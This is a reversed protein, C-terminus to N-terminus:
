SATVQRARNLLEMVSNNAQLFAEMAEHPPLDDDWGTMVKGLQFLRVFVGKDTLKGESFLKKIDNLEEEAYEITKQLREDM